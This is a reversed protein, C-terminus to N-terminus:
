LTSLSDLAPTGRVPLRCRRQFVTPNVLESENTAARFRAENLPFGGCFVGGTEGSTFRGDSASTGQHGVESM